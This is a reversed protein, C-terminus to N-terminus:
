EALKKLVCKEVEKSVKMMMIPPVMRGLREWQEEITGTCVFDDPVSTIRKLEAITFKRDYIPHCTGCASKNGGMQCITSCPQYM